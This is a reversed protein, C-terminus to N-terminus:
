YIRIWDLVALMTMDVLAAGVGEAEAEAGCVALELPEMAHAFVTAVSVPVHGQPEIDTVTVSRENSPLCPCLSLLGLRVM